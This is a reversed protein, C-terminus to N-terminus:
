LRPRRILRLWVMLAAIMTVTGAAVKVAFAPWFDLSPRVAEGVAESVGICLGVSVAVAVWDRTTGWESLPKPGDGM